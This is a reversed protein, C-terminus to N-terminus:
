TSQPWLSFNYVIRIM